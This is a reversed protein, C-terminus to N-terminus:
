HRTTDVTGETDHPTSWGGLGRVLKVRVVKVRVRSLRERCPPHQVCVCVDNRDFLVFVESGLSRYQKRFTYPFCIGRFGFEVGLEFGFEAEVRVTVTVTVTVTVAITVM